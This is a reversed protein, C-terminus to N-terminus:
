MTYTAKDSQTQGALLREVENKFKLSNPDKGLQMGFGAPKTSTGKENVWVVKGNLPYRESSNPLSFAVFVDEGIAHKRTSPVFIGGDKVFTMYSQYLTQTDSIHCTIIGGRIPMVM